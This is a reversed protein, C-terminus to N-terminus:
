AGDFGPQRLKAMRLVFKFRDATIKCDDGAHEVWVFGPRVAVFRSKPGQGCQVWQGPQLRLKGSLIAMYIGSRWLNITKRYKMRDGGQTTETFIPRVAM